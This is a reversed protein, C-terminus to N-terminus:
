KSFFLKKENRIKGSIVNYFQGTNSEHKRFISNTIIDIGQIGYSTHSDVQNIHLDIDARNGEFWIKYRLYGDFNFGKSNWM